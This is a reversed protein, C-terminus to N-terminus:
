LFNLTIGEDKGLLDFTFIKDPHSLTHYTVRFTRKYNPSKATIMNILEVDTAGREKAIDIVLQVLTKIDSTMLEGM